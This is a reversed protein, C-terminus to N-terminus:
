ECKSFGCSLCMVCGNEHKINSGCEPCITMTKPNYNPTNEPSSDIMTFKTKTSNLEDDDINVTNNISM